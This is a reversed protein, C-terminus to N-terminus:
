TTAQVLCFYSMRNTENNTRNSRQKKRETKREKMREKKEQKKTKSTEQTQTQSGGSVALSSCCVFLGVYVCSFLNSLLRICFELMLPVVSSSMPRPQLLAVM